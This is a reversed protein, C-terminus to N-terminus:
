EAQGTFETSMLAGRLELGPDAAEYNGEATQLTEGAGHFTKMLTSMYHVMEGHFSAYQAATEESDKPLLGFTTAEARANVRFEDLPGALARAAAAYDAGSRHLQRHEYGFGQETM